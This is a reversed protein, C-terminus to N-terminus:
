SESPLGLSTAMAVVSAHPRRLNRAIKSTPLGRDVMGRLKHKEVATWPRENSRSPRPSLGTDATSKPSPAHM